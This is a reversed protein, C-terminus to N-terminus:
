PSADTAGWAADLADRIKAKSAHADIKAMDLPAHICGHAAHTRRFEDRTMGVFRKSCAPCRRILTEPDPSM